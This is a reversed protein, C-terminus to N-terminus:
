FAYVDLEYWIQVAALFCIATVPSTWPLLILFPKAKPGKLQAMKM